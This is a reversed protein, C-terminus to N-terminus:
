ISVQLTGLPLSGVRDTRRSFLAGSDIPHDFASDRTM